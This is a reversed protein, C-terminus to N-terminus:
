FKIKIFEDVSRRIQDIPKLISSSIYLIRVSSFKARLYKGITIRVSYITNNNYIAEQFISYGNDLIIFTNCGNSFSKIIKGNKVIEVPKKMFIKPKCNGSIFTSSPVINSLDENTVIIINECTDAHKLDNSVGFKKEYIYKQNHLYIYEDDYKEINKTIHTYDYDYYDPNNMPNLYSYQLDEFM